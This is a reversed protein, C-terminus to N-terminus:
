NVPNAGEVHKAMRAQHLIKRACDCCRGCCTGVKLDRQLDDLSGAGLQAAELIQGDTVTNCVCVYM